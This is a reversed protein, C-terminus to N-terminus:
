VGMGKNEVEKRCQELYKRSVNKKPEKILRLRYVSECKPCYMARSVFGNSVEVLERGCGCYADIVQPFAVLRFNDYKM